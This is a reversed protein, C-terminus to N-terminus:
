IYVITKSRVMNRKFILFHKWPQIIQRKMTIFSFGPLIKLIFVSAPRGGDAAPPRYHFIAPEFAASKHSPQEPCHDM